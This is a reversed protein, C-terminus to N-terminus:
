TKSLLEPCSETGSSSRFWEEATSRSAIPGSGASQQPALKSFRVAGALQNATHRLPM